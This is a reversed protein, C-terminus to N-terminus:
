SPITLNAFTGNLRYYENIVFDFTVNNDADVEMSGGVVAGLNNDDVVVHTFSCYSSSVEGEIISFATNTGTPVVNYTGSELSGNDINAYILATMEIGDDTSFVAVVRGVGSDTTTMDIQVSTFTLDLDYDIEYEFMTTPYESQVESYETGNQAVVVLTYSTNAELGEVVVEEQTMDVQTGNLIIEDAHPIAESRGIVMYSIAEANESSYTFAISNRAPIVSEIALTPVAPEDPESQSTATELIAVSSYIEGNLAAAAITYSTGATLNDATYTGTGTGVQHGSSIIEEAGPVTTGTEVIQWAVTEADVPTLTFDISTERAEILSISIKPEVTAPSKECSFLSLCALGALIASIYDTKM